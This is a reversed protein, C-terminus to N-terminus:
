GAPSSRRKTGPPTGTAQRCSPGVRPPSVPDCARPLGAGYPSDTSPTSAAHKRVLWRGCRRTCWRIGALRRRPLRKRPLCRMWPAHATGMCSTPARCTSTTIVRASKRPAMPSAHVEIDPGPAPSYPQGTLEAVGVRLAKSVAGLFTPSAPATRQEVARVIGLSINAKEALAKQTLGALKRTQAVRAAIAARDDMESVGGNLSM